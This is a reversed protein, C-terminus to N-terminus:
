GKFARKSALYELEQKTSKRGLIANRHPFRGFEEILKYHHMAFRINNELNAAMFLSLSLAQDELNESHMLPMYLFGVKDRDLEEDFGKEIALRAVEVAMQESLFSKKTGRFMNLPFQDLIISLVLCGNATKKMEELKGSFASEWVAEYRRVLEQDFEPTSHFWLKRVEDSFWYQLIDNIIGKSGSLIDSM